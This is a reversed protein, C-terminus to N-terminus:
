KSHITSGWSHREVPQQLIIASLIMWNILRLSRCWRSWCQYRLISSKANYCNYCVRHHGLLTLFSAALVTWCNMTPSSHIAQWRERQWSHCQCEATQDRLNSTYVHDPFTSMDEHIAPRTVPYGFSACYQPSRILWSAPCDIFVKFLRFRSPEGTCFKLLMYSCIDFMNRFCESWTSLAFHGVEVMLIDEYEQLPSNLIDYYLVDPAGDCRQTLMQELRKAKRHRLAQPEPLQMFHMTRKLCAM